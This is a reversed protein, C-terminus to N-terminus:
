AFLFLRWATLNDVIFDAITEELLKTQGLRKMDLIFLKCPM